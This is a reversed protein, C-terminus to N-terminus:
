LVWQFVLIKAVTETSTNLLPFAEPWYCFVDVYTHLYTCNHSPPLLGIINIHVYQFHADPTASSGISPKIQQHVKAKQCMVCTRDRDQQHQAVYFLDIDAKLHHLSYTRLTSWVSGWPFKPAGCATRKSILSFGQHLCWFTNRFAFCLFCCTQIEAAFISTWSQHLYWMM